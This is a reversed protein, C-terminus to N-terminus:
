TSQPRGGPAYHNELQAQARSIRSKVTGLKLKLMDAVEEYSHGDVHHLLYPAANTHRIKAQEMISMVAEAHESIDPIEDVMGAQEQMESIAEPMFPFILRHAPSRFADIAVNTVVRYTWTRINGPLEFKRRQLGNIFVKALGTQVIDEVNSNNREFRRAASFATPRLLYYLEGQAVEDGGQARVVLEDPISIRTIPAQESAVTEGAQGALSAAPTDLESLQQLAVPNLIAETHVSM